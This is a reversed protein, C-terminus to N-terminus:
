FNKLMKQMISKLWNPKKKWQYVEATKDKASLIYNIKPLSLNFSSYHYGKEKPSYVGSQLYILTSDNLSLVGHGCYPPVLVQRTLSHNLEVIFHNGYTKSYPRLDVVIDLVRGKVCTILKWYPSIHIGRLVGGVSESWNTQKWNIKKHNRPSFVEEVFGRDDPFRTPNYLVLDKIM